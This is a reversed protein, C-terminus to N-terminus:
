LAAGREESGISVCAPGSFNYLESNVKLNETIKVVTEETLTLMAHWIGKHLCVPRDLLFARWDLPAEPLAALLVGMGSLPEFSEMSTPHRELQTCAKNFVRFLALRWPQEAETVLVEFRPPQSSATFELVTGYPFFGAKDITEIPRM